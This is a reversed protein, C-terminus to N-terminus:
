RLAHPYLVRRRVSRATHAACLGLRVPEGLLAHMTEVAEPDTPMVLTLARGGALRVRVPSVFVPVHTDHAHPLECLPPGVVRLFPEEAPATAAAPAGATAGGAARLPARGRRPAFRPPPSPPTRAAAAAPCRQM